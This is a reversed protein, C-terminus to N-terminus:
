HKLIGLPFHVGLASFLKYMVVSFIITVIVDIILRKKDRIPEFILVVLITAAISAIIYGIRPIAFIWVSVIVGLILARVSQNKNLPFVPTGPEDNKMKMASIVVQILSIGMGVECILTPWFSAQKSYDGSLYLFFGFILFVLVGSVVNRKNM